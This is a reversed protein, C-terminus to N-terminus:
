RPDSPLERLPDIVSIGTPEFHRINSTLMTLRHAEATAAIILDPLDVVLPRIRDQMRAVAKAVHRDMSLIREDFESVIADILKAVEVARKEAGHRRLKLLGSEMETLTMASLYLFDGNRRIWQVVPQVDHRRRPDLVSVINTDLLYM